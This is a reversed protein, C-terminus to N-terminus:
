ACLYVTDRLMYYLFVFKRYIFIVNREFKSHCYFTIFVFDSGVSLDWIFLLKSGPIPPSHRFVGRQAASPLHERAATIIRPLKRSEDRFVFQIEIETVLILNSGPNGPLTLNPIVVRGFRIQEGM